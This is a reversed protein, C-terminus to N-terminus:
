ELHEPIRIYDRYRKQLEQYDEPTDIDFLIFSDTVDVDHAIAAHSNLFTKSGGERKWALISPILSAPILPPHGRKGEYIPYIINEPHSTWANILQKVTSVNVMPIDVPLLFFAPYEESLQRIGAQVSSFM